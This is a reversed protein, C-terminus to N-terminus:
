RRIRSLYQVHICPYRAVFLLAPVRLTCRFRGARCASEPMMWWSGKRLRWAAAPQKTARSAAAFAFVRGSLSM